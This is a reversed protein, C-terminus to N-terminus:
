ENIPGAASQKMDYFPSLMWQYIKRKELFLTIEAKMGNELPMSKGDYRITQKEPKVIVKYYPISATQTSKPAGPYTQMEQPAAPTKSVMAVTAAFQGFKEAPFAEYRVNVRDGAAVYPVADNPVWIVLYYSKINSPIIQLLSDGPNVMQGVTVSLSDIKGESAARIIIEGGMNTNVLEKKLDYRQLEMQYIRNDFEAAETQIQSELSTIQLANQENQGSLTLLDNQQQYYLAIQSSLQDKNILGKAQYQQYSDMYQKLKKIGEESERVIESSHKFANIYQTKQKELTELTTQKSQELRSIINDIRMLQSEIDQRQNDSVVGDVTSKSVDIQYIADGKKIIQGESVFQKVVFGQVGSDISVTRPWTSIEGGVNVRRTYAGQTIFIIFIVIFLACTMMVLWPPIGSLLIARGQWKLKKNELAEQRFM